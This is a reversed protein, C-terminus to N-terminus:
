REVEAMKKRLNCLGAELQFQPDYGLISRAESIDVKIGADGDEKEPSFIIKARGKAFVSSITEALQKMTTPTGSGIPFVGAAAKTSALFVAMAADTCYLFDQTRTGSGYVNIADGHIARNIMIPLVTGQYQGIGYLSSLRLIAVPISRMSLTKMITECAIKATGYLDRPAVVSTSNLLESNAEYVSVSSSFVIGRLYQWRPINEAMFAVPMINDMVIQASNRDKELWPIKAALHCIHTIEDPLESWLVPNCLDGRMWEVGAATYNAPMSTKDVVVIRTGPLQHQFMKIVNSGLLGAGGTILVCNLQEKKTRCIVTM